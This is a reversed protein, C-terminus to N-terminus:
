KETVCLTMKRARHDALGSRDLSSTNHIMVLYYRSHYVIFMSHSFVIPHTDRPLTGHSSSLLMGKFLEM